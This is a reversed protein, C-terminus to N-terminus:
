LMTLYCLALDNQCLREYFGSVHIKLGNTGEKKIEIETSSKRKVSM